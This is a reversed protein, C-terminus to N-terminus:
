KQQAIEASLGHFADQYDGPHILYAVDYMVKGLSWIHSARTFRYGKSDADKYVVRQAAHYSPRDEDDLNAGDDLFEEAEDSRVIIGKPRIRDIHERVDSNRHFTDLLGTAGIDKIEITRPVLHQVVSPPSSKGMM